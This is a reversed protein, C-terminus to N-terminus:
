KDNLLTVERNQLHFYNYILPFITTSKYNEAILLFM